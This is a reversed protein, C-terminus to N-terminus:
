EIPERYPDIGYKKLDAQLSSASPEQATPKQTTTPPLPPSQPHNEREPVPVRQQPAPTGGHQMAEIDGAMTRAHPEELPKTPQASFIAKVEPVPTPRTPPAPAHESPANTPLNAHFTALPSSAPAPVQVPPTSTAVYAPPPPPPTRPTETSIIVPLDHAPEGGGKAILPEFVGNRVEEIIDPILIEGVGAETALNQPLENPSSVGLLVMLIENSVDTRMDPTFGFKTSLKETFASFEGSEIFEQIFPPTNQFTALLQNEETTLTDM